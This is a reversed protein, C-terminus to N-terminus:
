RLTIKVTYVPLRRPTWEPTQGKGLAQGGFARRRDRTHLREHRPKSSVRYRREVQMTTVRLKREDQCSGLDGSVKSITCIM